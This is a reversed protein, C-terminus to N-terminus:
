RPIREERYLRIANKATFFVIMLAMGSLGIVGGVDFLRYIQGFLHVRPKSFLAVNGIALLIRLETPGFRWFSLRFEGIAHTALYSQISLMLFAVLLGVAISPHMYGSLALGGMLALAGFSDVMHDVYFGYRPRLRRRFRAITGDLSDGLWNLGLCVTVGILAFRDRSALAYFLGAGVQALFGLLTLHDPGIWDPTRAALWLLARKEGAAVWSEQVRAVDPVRHVRRIEVLVRPDVQECFEMMTQWGTIAM